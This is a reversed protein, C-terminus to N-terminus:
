GRFEPLLGIGLTGCHSYVVRNTRRLVDCWGVVGGDSLVVFQPNNQKINNLVFRTTEEIPPAELLALFKKERAVADVAARFSPIHGEAIPVIVYEV